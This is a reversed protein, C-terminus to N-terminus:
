MEQGQFARHGRGPHRVELPAGPDGLVNGVEVAPPNVGAGGGYRPSDKGLRQAAQHTGFPGLAQAPEPSRQSVPSPGVSRQMRRRGVPASKMSGGDEEGVGGGDKFRTVAVQIGGGVPGIVRGPNHDESGRDIATVTGSAIVRNRSGTSVVNNQGTGKEGITVGADGSGVEMKAAGSRQRGQKGLISKRRSLNVRMESTEVLDSASGIGRLRGVGNIQAAVNAGQLNGGRDRREVAGSPGAAEGEVRWKTGVSCAGPIIGGEGARTGVDRRPDGKRNGGGTRGRRSGGDPGAKGVGVFIRDGSRETRKATTIIRRTARTGQRDARGVSHRRRMAQRGSDLRVRGENTSRRHRGRMREAERGTISRGARQAIRGTRGSTMRIRKVVQIRLGSCASHDSSSVRKRIERQLRPRDRSKRTGEVAGGGMSHTAGTGMRPERGNGMGVTGIGEPGNGPITIPSRGGTKRVEVVVRGTNTGAVVRARLLGGCAVPVIPLGIRGTIRGNRSSRGSRLGREAQAQIRISMAKARSSDVLHVRSAAGEGGWEIVLAVAMEEVERTGRIRAQPRKGDATRRVSRKSEHGDGVDDQGKGQQGRKERPMRRPRGRRIHIGLDATGGQEQVVEVVSRKRVGPVMMVLHGAADVQGELEGLPKISGRIGTAKGRGIATRGAIFGSGPHHDRDEKGIRSIRREEVTVAAVAAGAAEVKRAGSEAPAILIIERRQRLGTEERCGQATKEVTM